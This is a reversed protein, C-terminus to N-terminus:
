GATGVVRRAQVLDETQIVTIESRRRVPQELPDDLFVSFLDPGIQLLADGTLPALEGALATNPMRRRTFSPRSPAAENGIPLPLRQPNDTRYVIDGLALHGLGGQAFPLLSQADKGVIRRYQQRHDIPVVVQDKCVMAKQGEKPARQVVHGSTPPLPRAIDMWLIQRLCLPDIE